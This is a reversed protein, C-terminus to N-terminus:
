QSPLEFPGCNSVTKNWNKDDCNGARVYHCVYYAGPRMGTVCASMSCGVWQSTRWVMQTFHGCVKGTECVFQDDLYRAENAWQGLASVASTSFLSAYGLNEGYRTFSHDLGICKETLQDAWTKASKQLISSWELLPVGYEKRLTNHTDLFDAITQGAFQGIAGLGPYEDEEEPGDTPGKEPEEGSVDEPGAEPEERSGDEPGAQPEEGFGDEPGAQPEEGSGDEPGAQPEEEPGDEPGAQPEEESGDEPVVVPVEESGDEPEESEDESGAEPQPQPATDGEPQAEGIEPQGQAAGIFFILLLVICLTGVLHRFLPM